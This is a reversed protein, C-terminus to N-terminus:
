TLIEFYASSRPPLFQLLGRSGAGLIERGINKKFRTLFDVFSDSFLVFKQSKLCFFMSFNVSDLVFNLNLHNQDFYLVLFEFFHIKQSMIKQSSYPNAKFFFVMAQPKIAM